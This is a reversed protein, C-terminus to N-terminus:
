RQLLLSEKLGKRRRKGGGVRRFYPASSFPLPALPISNALYKSSSICVTEGARSHDKTTPSFDWLKIFFAVKTVEKGLPLTPPFSSFSIQSLLSSSSFSSPQTKKEEERPDPISLLSGVEEEEEESRNIALQKSSSPLSPAYSFQAHIIVVKSYLHSLVALTYRPRRM